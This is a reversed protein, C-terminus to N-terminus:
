GALTIQDYALNGFADVAIGDVRDSWIFQNLGYYVPTGPMEECLIDEAAHYSELAVDPDEQKNGEAVLADFEDNRFFSSNSGGPPTSASAWLPELFNQASPYDMGWGLRFPGTFGKEDALPLYESFELSEFKIEEIGFIERYSNAIADMWEEHGGGSNFWLTLPGDWGGAKDYLEKAKDPDYTADPCANERYGPIGPALFSGAPVRGGSFIVDTISQRDIALSFAHRLDKDKLADVYLPFGIYGFSTDPAEGFHDGFEAEATGIREPPLEDMIDLGGALFDNYATAQDAYIRFELGDIQAADDGQYDEFRVVNIAQDHEWPGDMMFPGNLIPEENFADPDDFAEQPMPCFAEYGVTLPFQAFPENLTVTFTTDDVVELGSMTEASPEPAEKPGEEGDPDAPAVDEFGQINAFFNATQQANPGYAAFNWSDVYSQATIPEGNHFTWGEKITVTWTQLDDTEISEAHAMYMETTAVDFQVLTTCLAELVANGESESSNTPLLFEPEVVFTSVVGGEGGDAPVDTGDAQPAADDDGGGCAAAILSLAVLLLLWRAPKQISSM